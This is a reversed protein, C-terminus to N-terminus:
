ASYKSNGADFSVDHQLNLQSWGILLNDYNTTSLTVGSFMYEMITVASVNWGGIDQNFATAEGFMWSMDTVSSTDWNGIPQNFATAWYFMWSMDTVSSTDWNGIPQNFATAWYFMRSMDTVSSTDWNEIPQNFATADKFMWSMDTVNSTVWNGIPQNFSSAGDFMGRMSTVSSVIWSGIPQNFSTAGYFMRSMDTVSSTDWNGIDQNFSSAGYFMGRMSTVSSTDWDGIPQNFATAGDFMYSMDTVSSTDWNGIPQNFATAGDFMRSMDTVSSTDWNGIDQNFSSAGYFMGSMDTVSSTDWNKMGPVINLRTCGSFAWAMSTTGTLDPADQASINLNSCDEFYYGWNGLRMLGWQKIDLIKLKDSDYSFRWGFLIGTINVTYVGMLGYSHTVEKQNYSIINDSTGDGWDVTFNYTGDYILPLKIENNKSSGYSTKTTNWVTTFVSTYKSSVMFGISTKSVRGNTDNSWIKITTFGEPFTLEIPKTYFADTGNWNYWVKDVGSPDKTEINLLIKSHNYTFINGPSIVQIDPGSYDNNEPQENPRFYYMGSFALGVIAIIVGIIYLYKKSM